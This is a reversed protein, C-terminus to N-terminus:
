QIRQLESVIRQCAETRGEKLLQLALMTQQMQWALAQTCAFCKPAHVVPLLCRVVPQGCGPARIFALPNPPSTTTSSM